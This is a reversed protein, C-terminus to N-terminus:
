PKAELKQELEEIHHALEDLISLFFMSDRNQDALSYRGREKLLLRIENITRSAM